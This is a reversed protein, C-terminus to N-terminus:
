PFRRPPRLWRVGPERSQSFSGARPRSSPQVAREPGRAIGVPRTGTGQCWHGLAWFGFGGTEVAGDQPGDERDRNHDHDTRTAYRGVDRMAFLLPPVLNDRVQINLILCRLTPEAYHSVQMFFFCATPSGVFM